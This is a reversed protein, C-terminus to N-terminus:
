CRAEAVRAAVQTEDRGYIYRTKGDVDYQGVVRGDKRTYVSGSGKIRRRKNSMGEGM